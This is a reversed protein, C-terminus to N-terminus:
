GRRVRLLSVQIPPTLVQQMLRETVTPDTLDEPSVVSLRLLLFGGNRGATVDTWRPVTTPTARSPKGAATSAMKSTKASATTKTLTINIVQSSSATTLHASPLPNRSLPVPGSFTSGTTSTESPTSNMITAVESLSYVMASFGAPSTAKGVTSGAETSTTVAESVKTHSTGVSLTSNGELFNTSVTMLKGSPPTAKAATTETETTSSITLTCDPTTSVTASAISLIEAPATTRSFHSTDENSDPLASTEPASLAKGGTPSHNIDSTGPITATAEMEIFSCNIVKLITINSPVLAKALATINPLLAQPAIAPVSNDSSTSSESSLAKAEASYALTLYDVMITKAEESSDFTCLTDCIAKLLDKGTVTEVTAMESGMPRSRTASTELPMTVVMSKSPMTKVLARTEAAPFIAKTEQTEAESITGGPIFARDSTQTVLTQTELTIHSPVSIETLDTTWFLGESTTEAAPTMASMDAHGSGNTSPGAFSGPVGAKWCFFFLPLALGWLCDMKDPAGAVM